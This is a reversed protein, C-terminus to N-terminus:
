NDLRMMELLWRAFDRHGRLNFHTLNAFYERPLDLGADVCTAGTGKCIDGVLDAIQELDEAPYGSLDLGERLTPAIYVVVDDTVSAARAVATIITESLIARHERFDSLWPFYEDPLPAWTFEREAQPYNYDSWFARFYDLGWPNALAYHLYTFPGALALYRDGDACEKPPLASAPRFNFLNVEIVVESIDAEIDQLHCEITTVGTLDQGIVALNLVQRQPEMEQMHWSMVDRSPWSYGWTVSSGLLLVKPRPDDIAQGEVYLRTLPGWQSVDDINRVNFLRNDITEGIWVSVLGSFAVHTLAASLAAVTLFGLSGWRRM